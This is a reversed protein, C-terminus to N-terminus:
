FHLLGASNMRGSQDVQLVFRSTTLTASTLPAEVLANLPTHTIRRSYLPLNPQSLEEIWQLQSCYSDQLSGINWSHVSSKSPQHLCSEPASKMSARGSRLRPWEREICWCKIWLRCVSLLISDSSARLHASFNRDVGRWRDSTSSENVRLEPGPPYTDM